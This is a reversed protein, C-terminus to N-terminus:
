RDSQESKSVLWENWTLLRMGIKDYNVRLYGDDGRVVAEPAVKEVEQAMVGVYVQDSWNYRYRYLGLGNDLYALKVIDRKLRIDSVIVPPPPSPNATSPAAVISNQGVVVANGNVAAKLAYVNQAAVIPDNVTAVVLRFYQMSKASEVGFANATYLVDKNRMQFRSALFHGAPDRLNLNYIVPIIPGDFKSCDIGLREAVDRTEGRYLFVAAPDALSDNLGAAKAMAESLSIRWAEFPFQGQQGTAGFATFTQPERYLYVTDYPHIFINNSPEYVLAGFPVIERRNQRDLMV